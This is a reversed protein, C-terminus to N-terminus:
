LAEEETIHIIKLADSLEGLERTDMDKEMIFINFEKALFFDIKVM